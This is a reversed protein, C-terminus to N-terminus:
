EAVRRNTAPRSTAPLKEPKATPLVWINRFRVPNKHDQLIIPAPGPVEDTVGSRTPGEIEADQHITVGNHIVTVRANSTKNGDADFRAAKFTIDYTQWTEPPTCANEKPKKRNYISGCGDKRAEQGYSDLIQIEYRHQLFVGSNSRAQGKVEPPNKPLWFELHLQYDEFKQKSVIDGGGAEMADADDLIKWPCPQDDKTTWADTNSGDFLVIAGGLVAASPLSPATGPTAPAADASEAAPTAAADSSRPGRRGGGRDQALAVVTFTMLLVLCAASCALRRIM